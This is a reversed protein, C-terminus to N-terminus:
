LGNWSIYLGVSIRPDSCVRVASISPPWVGLVAYGPSMAEVRPDGVWRRLRLMLWGVAIGWLIEGALIVAFSSRVAAGISFAGVTVAMVAFRYIILATADNALREGESQRSHAEAFENKACDVLTRGPGAAFKLALCFGGAM